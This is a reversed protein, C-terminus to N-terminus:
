MNDHGKTYTFAPWKRKNHFSQSLRQIGAAYDLELKARAKGFEQMEELVVLDFKYKEEIRRM